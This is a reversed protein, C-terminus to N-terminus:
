DKMDIEFKKVKGIVPEPAQPKNPKPPFNITDLLDTNIWRDVLSDVYTEAKIIAKERCDQDKELRLSEVKKNYYDLVLSEKTPRDSDCALVIFFGTYLVVRKM